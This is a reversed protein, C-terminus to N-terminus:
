AAIKLKGNKLLNLMTLNQSSNGTYCQIGNAAAIRARHSYSSDVCLSKLADVISNSYGTYVAYCGAQATPVVEKKLKGTKLLSLMTLNQYSTGQYCQIGNAAAIKSRHYYSSDISLSKLADVISDTCGNFQPYYTADAASASPMAAVLPTLVFM